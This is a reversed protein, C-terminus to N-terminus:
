LASKRGRTFQTRNNIELVSRDSQIQYLQNEHQWPEPRTSFISRRGYDSM